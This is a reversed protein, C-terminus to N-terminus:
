PNPRYVAVARSGRLSCLEIPFKMRLAEWARVKERPRGVGIRREDMRPPCM